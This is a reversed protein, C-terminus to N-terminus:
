QFSVGVTKPGSARANNGSNWRAFPLTKKIRHTAYAAVLMKILDGAIFPTAGIIVAKPLDIRMWNMLQIIGSTYIITTGIVMCTLLWPLGLNKKAETLKGIVFTGAVFGVLYGGTPGILVSLGANGGAFIPLGSIGVLIYVLQSLAGLSGGLIAGAMYTFLTQMTIPVPSFPLPIRIFSGTATLASFLAVSLIDWAKLRM